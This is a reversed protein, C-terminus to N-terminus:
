YPMKKLIMKIEGMKWKSDKLRSNLTPRSLELMKAVETKNYLDIWELVRYTAKKKNKVFDKIENEM